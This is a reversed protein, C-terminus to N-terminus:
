VLSVRFGQSGSPQDDLGAGALLSHIFSTVGFANYPENSHMGAVVVLKLAGDGAKLGPIRRGRHSAGVDILECQGPYEAAYGALKEALQLAPDGMWFSEVLGM